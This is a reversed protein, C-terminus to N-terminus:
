FLSLQSPPVLHVKKRLMHSVYSETESLTKFRSSALYGSPMGLSVLCCNHFQVVYLSFRSCQNKYIIKGKYKGVM